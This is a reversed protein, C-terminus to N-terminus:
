KTTVGKSELRRTLDAALDVLASPQDTTDIADVFLRVDKGITPGFQSRALGDVSGIGAFLELAFGRASGARLVDLLGDALGNRQGLHVADVVLAVQAALLANNFLKALQASGVDAFRIVQGAYSEIVPLARDVAQAPGALMVLLEGAEAARPGGSVPADLVTIGHKEARGAIDQIETPSVTSHVTVIGGAAMGTVVGNPGFLVETVDAAEFVCVGVIDSAAGVVAPSMAIEAGWEAAKEAIEARRAWVTTPIGSNAIRRAMPTGQNGLGIFGARV